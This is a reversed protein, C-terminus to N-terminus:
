SDKNSPKHHADGTGSVFQSVLAHVREVQELHVIHGAGPVTVAQANPMAHAMDRAITVYKEDSEGAILLTPTHILPLREWLSEQVGVSLARLSNALGIANNQLRQQKLQDRVERPLGAHSAFLPITTWYEVFEQVGGREIREALEADSSARRVRELPDQIGPSASELILASIRGPHAHALHLAVRGGMSYGLVKFSSIGLQDLIAVLDAVAREMRYREPDAPADSKGHGMLDVALVAFQQELFVSLPQWSAASGTFGHLLLLPAGRGSREINYWAGNALLRVM